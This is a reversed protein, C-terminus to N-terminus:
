NGVKVLKQILDSQLSALNATIENQANSLLDTGKATLKEELSTGTFPDFVNAWSAPVLGEVFAQRSM